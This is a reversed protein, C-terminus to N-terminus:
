GRKGIVMAKLYDKLESINEKLLFGVCNHGAIDFDKDMQIQSTFIVTLFGKDVSLKLIEWGNVGAVDLLVIDFSRRQLFKFATNADSAKYVICMDLVNEVSEMVDPDDDVLLISLGDLMSILRGRLLLIPKPASQLIHWSVSGVSMPLGPNSGYPTMVILDVDDREAYKCIVEIANGTKVVVRVCAGRQELEQQLTCLYREAKETLRCAEEDLADDSIHLHEIAQLLTINAGLLRSLNFAAGIGEEARKSGDLPVLINKYM